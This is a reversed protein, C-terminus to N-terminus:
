EPTDDGCPSATTQSSTSLRDITISSLAGLGVMGRPYEWLQQLGFRVQISPCSLAKRRTNFASPCCIGDGWVPYFLFCSTPTETSYRIGTDRPTGNKPKGKKKAIPISRRIIWVIRNPACSPKGNPDQFIYSKEHRTDFISLAYKPKKALLLKGRQSIDFVLFLLISSTLAKWNRLKPSVCLGVNM